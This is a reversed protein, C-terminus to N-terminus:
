ANRAPLMRRGPLPSWFSIISFRTTINSMNKRSRKPAPRHEPRNEREEALIWSRAPPGDGTLSRLSSREV